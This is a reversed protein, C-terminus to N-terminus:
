ELATRKRKSVKRQGVDAEILWDVGSARATMHTLQISDKVKV